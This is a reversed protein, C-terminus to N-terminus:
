IYPIQPFCFFLFRRFVTLYVTVHSTNFYPSEKDIANAYPNIFLLMLHISICIQHNFISWSDRYVTVHSTNFNLFDSSDLSPSLLYVTVHSTNFHCYYFISLATFFLYVTVHSTNFNLYSHHRNDVSYIFLLMLHISIQIFAHSRTHWLSLCYCSIYQFIGETQYTENETIIFLLM